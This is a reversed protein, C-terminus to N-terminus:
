QKFWRTAQLATRLPTDVFAPARLVYETAGARAEPDLSGLYAVAAEITFAKGIKQAFNSMLDTWVVVDIGKTGGWTRIVELTGGDRSQYRSGDAFWYGISKVATGERCRLDDIADDPDKRTSMAYSVRCIAGHAPEVVLTLAGKRTQSVRTFEIALKPGDDLWPEHQADFEPREDWLLSGWGLLAIKPM